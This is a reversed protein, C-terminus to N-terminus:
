KLTMKLEETNERASKARGRGREWKGRLGRGSGPGMTGYRDKDNDSTHTRNTKGTEKTAGKSEGRVEKAARSTASM